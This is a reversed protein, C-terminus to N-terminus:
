SSRAAPTPMQFGAPIELPVTYFRVEHGDPDHVGLLVWGVPTREVGHLPDGLSEFRDALARIADEGPVGISFYDFGAAARARDPDCRLALDPGGNPHTMSVGVRVGDEIFEFLVQYGLRDQYWALSETLDTVPLKLHHIGDLVPADKMDEGAFHLSVAAICIYQM